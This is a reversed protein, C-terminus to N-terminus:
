LDGPKKNEVMGSQDRKIIDSVVDAITVNELAKELALQASAFLPEIAQQINKGVLCAPNPQEHVGFLENEQVVNVAKYVDLLSIEKIDRALCAGAIGPRVHVLGANKLYGTIKRIVVPNTNVSSAIWESTNVQDKNIELLSLIHIGVAFRSSISM